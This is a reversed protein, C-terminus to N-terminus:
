IIFHSGLIETAPILNSAPDSVTRKTVVDFSWRKFSVAM